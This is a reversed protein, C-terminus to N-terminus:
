GSRAVDTACTAAKAGLAPREVPPTQWARRIWVGVVWWPESCWVTRGISALDVLPPAMTAGRVQTDVRFACAPQRPRAPQEDGQELFELDGVLEVREGTADGGSQGLVVWAQDGDRQQQAVAPARLVEFPRSDPQAQNM